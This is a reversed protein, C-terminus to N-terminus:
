GGLLEITSASKNNGRLAHTIRRQLNLKIRYQLNDIRKGKAYQAHWKKSAMKQYWRRKYERLREVIGPRKCYERWYKAVRLKVVPRSYYEKSYNRRKVKVSKKARHLKQKKLLKVKNLHYYEWQYEKNNIM